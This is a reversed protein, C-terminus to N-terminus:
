TPKPKKKERGVALDFAGPWPIGSDQNEPQQNQLIEALNDRVTETGCPLTSTHQYDQQKM